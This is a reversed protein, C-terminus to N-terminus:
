GKLLAQLRARPIAIDTLKFIKFIETVTPHIVMFIPESMLTGRLSFSYYIEAQGIHIQLVLTM